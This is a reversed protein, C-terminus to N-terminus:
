CYPAGTFRQPSHTHGSLGFHNKDVAGALTYSEIISEISHHFWCLLAPRRTESFGINWTFCRHDDPDTVQIAYGASETRM